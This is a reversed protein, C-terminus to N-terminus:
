EGIGSLKIYVMQKNIYTKENIRIQEAWEGNLVIDRSIGPVGVVDKFGGKPEKAGCNLCIGTMRENHNTVNLCNLCFENWKWKTVNDGNCLDENADYDALKEKPEDLEIEKPEKKSFLKFVNFMEKEGNM